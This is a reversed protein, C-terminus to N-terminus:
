QRPKAQALIQRLREPIVPKTLHGDFGAIAAQQRDEPRGYGTLAILLPRSQGEQARLRSAVQYGDMGPLGIDVIMVDPHSTLARELGDVGDAAEEVVHGDLELLMKLMARGDHNDEIILVRRQPVATPGSAAGQRVAAPAEMAPLSVTFTAGWDPGASAARVTGSHLEVLRRVLTLGLGLGGHAREPSREGQTFLDFVRPLLEASIGEGTDAVELRAVAGDRWVRVSIKGAPPTFKVANGLLNTVVQEIRTPDGDIWVSETDVQPQHGAARGDATFMEVTRAVLAGLDLPERTLRIKGTTVRAVDLLDDVLRTLQAVQRTIVARATIAVGDPKGVRDLVSTAGAIAGLPNRLEHSLIALFEDKRRDSERLAEELRYREIFDAAQRAYLDLRRLDLDGPRHVSRWHTSLMGLPTGDRGILPTSQVARVEAARAISRFPAFPGDAEVDEIVIREGSRLARGCASDDDAAVERFAELFEPEFGRQVAIHLVTRTEDLLQVNGMDAGLLEMTGALMEELGERLSVTRWLRSGLENLRARIAAETALRAENDRLAREAEKLDTIDICSGIYGTFEGDPGYLPTGRDLVWRYAGDYRKLRYEMSFPERADFATVYTTLCADFDDQHVNEAWGNGLEQEMSRNVFALWTQNFWTCLKDPGSMWILVPAADAMVRFRQESDRLAAEAQRRVTGDRFVLVVGIIRGSEGHIPAASDDIPRERGDRAVLVTHNALGVTVGERLVRTVPNEARLRTHENIIHFVTELPQAVAEATTWGTLTEAVPNMFTIRGEGDTAMVGDGISSLTVRWSEAQAHLLAATHKRETIDRAIKSIGVVAGTVDRLPSLTVSVDIARGDKRVRVTEYHDIREGRALRNLFMAEEAMRDPPFIVTIPRGTMEDRSYGFIREAARNWSTVVGDLTKSVIADDSSEVIAALLALNPDSM